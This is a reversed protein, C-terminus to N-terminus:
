WVVGADHLTAPEPDPLVPVRDEDVDIGTHDVGLRDLMSRVAGVALEFAAARAPEDVDDLLEHGYLREISRITKTFRLGRPTGFTFVVRCTAGVAPPLRDQMYRAPRREFWRVEIPGPIAFVPVGVEQPDSAMPCWAAIPQPM